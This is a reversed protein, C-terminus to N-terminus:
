VALWGKAFTSPEGDNVFEVQCRVWMGGDRRQFTRGTVTVNCAMNQKGPFRFEAAEWECPLLSETWSREDLRVMSGVKVEVRYGHVSLSAM